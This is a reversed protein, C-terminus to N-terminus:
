KKYIEKDQNGNTIQAVALEDGDTLTIAKLGRKRLSSNYDRIESRKVLGKKTTMIFYGDSDLTKLTITSSVKEDPNLNLLNALHMGKSTRTSLPIEHGKKKLLNTSINQFGIGEILAKIAVGVEKYNTISIDKSKISFLSHM